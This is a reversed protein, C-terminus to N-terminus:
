PDWPCAWASLRCSDPTSTRTPGARPLEDAPALSLLGPQADRRQGLGGGLGVDDHDQQGVGLLLGGVVLEDRRVEVVAVAQHEGVAEVDAEPLDHRRAPTSTAM